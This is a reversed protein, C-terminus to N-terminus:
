TREPELFIYLYIYEEIKLNCAAFFEMLFFFGKLKSKQRKLHFSEKIIYLDFKSKM